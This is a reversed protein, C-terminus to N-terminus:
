NWFHSALSFSFATHGSLAVSSHVWINKTLWLVYSQLYIFVKELITSETFRCVLCLSEDSYDHCSWTHRVFAPSYTCGPSCIFYITFTFPSPAKCQFTSFLFISFCATLVWDCLYETEDLFFCNSSMDPESFNHHSMKCVWHNNM